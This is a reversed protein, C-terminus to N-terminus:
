VKHSIHHSSPGPHHPLPPLLYLTHKSPLDVPNPHWTHSFYFFHLRRAQAYPLISNGSVPDHCVTPLLSDPFTLPKPESTQQAFQGNSVRTPTWSATPSTQLECLTWAAPTQSNANRVLERPVCIHTSSHPAWTKLLVPIPFYPPVPLGGSLPASTGHGATRDLRLWSSLILDLPPALTSQVM